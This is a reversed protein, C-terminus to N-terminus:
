GTGSIDGPRSPSTLEELDRLIREEAREISKVVKACEEPTMRSILERVQRQFKEYTFRQLDVVNSM